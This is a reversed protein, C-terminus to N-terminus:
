SFIILIMASAEAFNANLTSNPTDTCNTRAASFKM